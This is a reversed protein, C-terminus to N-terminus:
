KVRGRAYDTALAPCTGEGHNKQCTRRWTLPWKLTDASGGYWIWSRADFNMRYIQGLSFRERTRGTCLDPASWMVNAPTFGDRGETHGDNEMQKGMGLMHGLEHTLTTPNFHAASMVIVPGRRPTQACTYGAFQGDISPVFVVWAEHPDLATGEPAVVKTLSVGLKGELVKDGCGTFPATLEALTTDPRERWDFAIGTRNVRFHREALALAKAWAYEFETSDAPKALNRRVNLLVVREPPADIFPAPASTQVSASVPNALRVGVDTAFVWSQPKCEAGALDTLSATGAMAVGRSALTSCPSHVPWDQLVAEPRSSPVHPVELTTGQTGKLAGVQVLGSGYPAKGSVTARIGSVTSSPADGAVSFLAFGEHPTLSELSDWTLPIPEWTPVKARVPLGNALVPVADIRFSEGPVTFVEAPDLEVRDLDDLSLEDCVLCVAGPACVNIGVPASGPAFRWAVLTAVALFVLLLRWNRM